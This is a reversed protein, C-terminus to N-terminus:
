VAGNDGALEISIQPASKAFPHTPDLRAALDLDEVAEPYQDLEICAIGQQIYSEADDPGIAIAHDFDGVAEEYREQCTLAIRRNLHTVANAPELEVVRSFDEGRGRDDGLRNHLMGKALLSFADEDNKAKTREDLGAM